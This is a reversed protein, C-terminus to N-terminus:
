HDFMADIDKKVAVVVEKGFLFQVPDRILEDGLGAVVVVFSGTLGDGIPVEVTVDEGIRAMEAYSYRLCLRCHIVDSGVQWLMFISVSLYKPPVTLNSLSSSFPVM